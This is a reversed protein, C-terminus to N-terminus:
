CVDGTVESEAVLGILSDLSDKFNFIILIDNSMPTIDIRKILAGIINKDLKKFGRYKRFLVMCDNERTRNADYEVIQAEVKALEIQVGQKDKEFKERAYNFESEDLLGGLHHTYAATLLNVIRETEKILGERKTVLKQRKTNIHASYATKKMVADMEFCTEIQRTIERLVASELDALRLTMSKGTINNERKLEPLCYKCYYTPYIKNGNQRNVHTDRCISRGCRSCFLRSKFINEEHAAGTHKFKEKNDSLTKQVENFLEKSIIAPHKDPHIIWEERPLRVNKGIANKENKGQVLCGTFTENRLIELLTGPTWTRCETKRSEKQLGLLFYHYRPTPYGEANLHEAIRAAGMGGKYLNYIMKVVEAAEPVVQYSERDETLWYGYPPVGGNLIGKKQNMVVVSKVKQGLDKSYQSNKLNKVLILLKKRGADPSFSDYNDNVSIFRVGLQLFTDFLLEGVEIYTRGLRSLDKVIVCKIKGELIGAMMDSFRPRNMNTGTYGVDDFFGKYRLDKQAYIYDKCFSIQSEISDESRSNVMSLRAYIWTDFIEPAFTRPPEPLTGWRSKRAM